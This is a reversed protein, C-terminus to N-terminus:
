STYLLKALYFKVGFGALSLLIQGVLMLVTVNREHQPGFIKLALNILTLNSMDVMKRDEGLQKKVDVLRFLKLFRFSIRGMFPLSSPRFPGTYSMGLRDTTENWKPLRHRPCPIWGFLQPISFIFNLIQPIFFLLLSKSFHGLIGIVALVMGAFNCYTDGVFVRAPYWNHWLLALSVGLFPCIVSFRFLTLSDPIDLSIQPMQLISYTLICGSIIVSQGVEIGNIGALINIANTCFVALLLIYIYFFIRLNIPQGRPCLRWLDFPLGDRGQIPLFTIPGFQSKLMDCIFDFRPVTVWTSDASLIYVMLLPLSAITPLLLKHRWRLDLVDDAFGLFIMCCISLMAALYNVLEYSIANNFSDTSSTNVPPIHSFIRSNSLYQSIFPVPIFLFMVILYVASAIVGIAEPIRPKGKKSLDKGSLNAKIFLYSMEKILHHTLIAGFISLLINAGILFIVSTDHIM